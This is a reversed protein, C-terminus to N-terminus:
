PLIIDHTGSNKEAPSGDGYYSYSYHKPTDPAKALDTMAQEMIDLRKNMTQELHEIKGSSTKVVETLQEIQPSLRDICNATKTGGDGVKSM